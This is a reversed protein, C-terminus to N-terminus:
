RMFNSCDYLELRVTSRANVFKCQFIILFIWVYVENRQHKIYVYVNSVRSSVFLIIYISKSMWYTPPLPCTSMKTFLSFNTNIQHKFNWKSGSSFIWTCVKETRDTYTDKCIATTNATACCIVASSRVFVVNYYM